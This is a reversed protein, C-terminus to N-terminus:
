ARRALMVRRAFTAVYVTAALIGGLDVMRRIPEEAKGLTMAGWLMAAVGTALTLGLFALTLSSGVRTTAPQNRRRIGDIALGLMVATTLVSVIWHIM